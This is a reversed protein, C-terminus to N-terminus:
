SPTPAVQKEEKIIRRVEDGSIRSHEVLVDAIRDITKAYETVIGDAQAVGEYFAALKHGPQLNAERFLEEIKVWDLGCDKVCEEATVIDNVVRRTAAYGCVTIAILLGINDVTALPRLTHAWGAITSPVGAVIERTNELVIEKVPLDYHESGVAHAAEHIAKLQQSTIEMDGRM